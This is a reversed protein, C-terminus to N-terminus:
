IINGLDTFVGLFLFGVWVVVQKFRGFCLCVGTEWVFGVWFFVDNKGEVGCFGMSFGYFVWPFGEFRFSRFKYFVCCVFGVLCFSCVGTFFSRLVGYLFCFVFCLMWSFSCGVWFCHRKFGLLCGLLFVRPFGFLVCFVLM